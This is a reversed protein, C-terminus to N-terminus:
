KTSARLIATVPFHDSPYRKFSTAQDSEGSDQPALHTTDIEASVCEWDESALIWDIRAGDSRGQFGNFTGVNTTRDPHVVAFTDQLKLRSRSEGDGTKEDQANEAQPHLLNQYPPSHIDCNFDGALIVPVRGGNEDASLLEIRRFLVTAGEARAEASRHDFHTNVFLFVRDTQRDWLRVWSAMRPLSSDWDKSGAQDPTQSLWFHGEAVKDFRRRDFLIACQEKDNPSAPNRDRGVIELHPLHQQISQSQFPFTEQTGLLEPGFARITQQLLEQRLEWRNDGDDATGYRVNFSMVRLDDPDATQAVALPIASLALGIVISIAVLRTISLWTSQGERKAGSEAGMTKNM